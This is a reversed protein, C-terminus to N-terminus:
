NDYGGLEYDQLFPLERKIWDGPSCGALSLWERTLHAQGYYGCAAAVHALNARKDAILRCAREFRLVRACAKPSVGVAERFRESFHRRSYGADNALKAVPIAGHVQALRQWAWSIEAQVDVPRLRSVLLYDLITFRQQWTGDVRLQEELDLARLGWIDSLSVVSSALEASPVALIARVGLPKIFVHLGFVEGSQRVVAPGNQLRNVLATFVGAAQRPDPIRAVDIAPGLSIILDVESPPLGFHVM